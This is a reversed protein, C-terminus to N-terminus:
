GAAKVVFKERERTACCAKTTQNIESLPKVGEPLARPHM